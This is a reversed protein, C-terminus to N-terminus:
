KLSSVLKNLMMSVSTILPSIKQYAKEDIYKLDKALFLQYEMEALSGKAIYLFQIFEKKYHRSQGEIINSPVSVASRKLQSTLAYKEDNPFSKTLEYVELVLQHAKKWVELKNEM